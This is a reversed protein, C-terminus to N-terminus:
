NHGFFTDKIINMHTALALGGNEVTLAVYMYLSMCVYMFACRPPRIIYICIYNDPLTTLRSLLLLYVAKHM